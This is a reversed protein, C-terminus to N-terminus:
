DNTVSFAFQSAVLTFTAFYAGTIPHQLLGSEAIKQFSEQSDYVTMGVSLNQENESVVELEYDELVGDQSTLFEIFPPKTQDFAEQQESPTSRVGLELIQGPRSALTRLDFGEPPKVAAYAKFDFTDFFNQAVATGLLNQGAAGFAEMSAWTTMGIFVETDDPAPLAYFSQFERDVVVGEQKKLETIFVARAKKFEDLRGKKVKRIAIEVVQSM